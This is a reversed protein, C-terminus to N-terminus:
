IIGFRLFSMPMALAQYAVPQKFNSLPEVPLRSGARQQLLSVAASFVAVQALIARRSKSSALSQEQQRYNWTAMAWTPHPHQEQYRAWRLIQRRPRPSRIPTRMSDKQRSHTM